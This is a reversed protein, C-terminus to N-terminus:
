ASGAFQHGVVNRRKAVSSQSVLHLIRRSGPEPPNLNPDRTIHSPLQFCNHTLTEVNAENQKQPSLFFHICKRRQEARTACFSRRALLLAQLGLRRILFKYMDINLLERFGKFPVPLAKNPTWLLKTNFISVPQHTDTEKQCHLVRPAM